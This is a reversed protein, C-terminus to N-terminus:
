TPTFSYYIDILEKTHAEMDPHQTIETVMAIHKAGNQLLLPIHKQKIGGMVTFPITLKEAITPLLATGMGKNTKGAQNKKTQTDFLPGINVYTAGEKEAELAQELSHCSRGIIFKEQFCVPLKSFQKQKQHVEEMSLDDQGLHVGDAKVELAVDMDDNIILLAGYDRTIKRFTKAKTLLDKQSAHKDRLQIIKAGGRMVAELVEIDSRGASLEECTVPYITVRSLPNVSANKQM